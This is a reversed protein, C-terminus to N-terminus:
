LLPLITIVWDLFHKVVSNGTAEAGGLVLGVAAAGVLKMRFSPRDRREDEERGEPGTNPQDAEPQDGSESESM